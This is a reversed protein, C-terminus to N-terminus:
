FSVQHLDWNRLTQFNLPDCHSGVAGLVFDTL